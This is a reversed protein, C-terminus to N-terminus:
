YLGYKNHLENGAGDRFEYPDGYTQVRIISGDKRCDIFGDRKNTGSGCYEIITFKYTTRDPKDIEKISVVEKMDPYYQRLVDEYESYDACCLSNMLLIAFFIGLTHKWHTAFSYNEVSRLIGFGILGTLLGFLLSSWPAVVCFILWSFAFSLFIGVLRKGTTEFSAGVGYAIIGGFLLTFLYNWFM